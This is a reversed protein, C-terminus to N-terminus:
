NQVCLLLLADARAPTLAHPHACCPPPRMESSCEQASCRAGAHAARSDAGEAQGVPMLAARSPSRQKAPSETRDTEYSAARSFDTPAPRGPRLSACEHRLARSDSQLIAVAGGVAHVKSQLGEIYHKKRSRSLAAGARKRGMRKVRKVEEGAASGVSGEGEEESFSRRGEEQSIEACRAEDMGPPVWAQPAQPPQLM